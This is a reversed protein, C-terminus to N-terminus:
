VPSEVAHFKYRNANIDCFRQNLNVDDILMRTFHYILLHATLIKQGEEAVPAVNSLLSGPGQIVSSFFRRGFLTAMTAIAFL